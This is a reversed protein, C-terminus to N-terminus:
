RLSMRTCHRMVIVVYIAVIFETIPMAFWIVSPKILPLLMILAGSVVLGRAVSVIFAAKPKMISQFYYTSFINLPLLLFSISYARIISPAIELIKDTPKMFIRIYLNPAVCSLTTWFIAFAAVTYLSYKLTENIRDRKGAGYNTSIIPQAAQGVSYACCQVFTGINIIPGYVALADGNLYKMIQRNFIVTLIGTAADVFFTSFGTESIRKLKGFFDEVRALKLTNKKRIFHSALVCFSIVSGIATALGAGYIGMNLGFTFFIDGFVNFIGGALVGLTATEPDNDNRLFAALMQNFLFVPFVIKIPKLYEHALGLLVEDTAGFFSLVPTEFILLGAWALVSLVVSGIVAVTFYQNGRIDSEGNEGRIASFIVSGGVGTFLGLSYIINWVPAVVALAATGNPGQYQGVVAMDVLGYISSIMASGFAAALYKFYIKKIKGNLLDMNKRRIFFILRVLFLRKLRRRTRSDNGHVVRGGVFM